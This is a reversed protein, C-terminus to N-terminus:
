KRAEKTAKPCWGAERGQEYIMDAKLEERSQHCGECLGSVLDATPEGCELCGETTFPVPWSMIALIKRLHTKIEDYRFEVELQDTIPNEGLYDYVAFQVARSKLLKQLEAFLFEARKDKEESDMVALLPAFLKLEANM